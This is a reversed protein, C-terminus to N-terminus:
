CLQCYFPLRGEQNNILYSLNKFCMCLFFKGFTLSMEFHGVVQHLEKSNLARQLQVLKNKM